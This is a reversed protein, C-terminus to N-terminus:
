ENKNLVQMVIDMDSTRDIGTKEACEKNWAKRFDASDEPDASEERLVLPVGAVEGISVARSVNMGGFGNQARYVMCLAGDSMQLVTSFRLSDPNRLEARLVMAVGNLAGWKKDEESKQATDTTPTTKPALSETIHVVVGTIALFGIACLLLLLFTNMCGRHLKQGCHPCVSAGSSVEKNCENCLVIAM